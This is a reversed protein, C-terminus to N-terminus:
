KNKNTITKLQKVQKNSKNTGKKISKCIQKSKNTKLTRIQENPM